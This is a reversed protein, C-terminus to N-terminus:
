LCMYRQYNYKMVVFRRYCVNWDLYKGICDLTLANPYYCGHICSGNFVDCSENKCKTPCLRDCGPMYRDSDCGSFILCLDDYIWNYKVPPM